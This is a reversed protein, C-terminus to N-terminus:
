VLYQILVKRYSDNARRRRGGPPTTMAIPESARNSLVTKHRNKLAPIADQLIRRNIEAAKDLESSRTSNEDKAALCDLERPPWYLSQTHVIEDITVSINEIAKQLSVLIRSAIQSFTDFM